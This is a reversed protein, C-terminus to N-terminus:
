FYKIDESLSFVNEKFEDIKNGPEKYNCSGYCRNGNCKLACGIESTKKWVIQTFHGTYGDSLGSDFDYNVKENYWMYFMDEALEKLVFM